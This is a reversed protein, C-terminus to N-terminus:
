LSEHVFDREKQFAKLFNSSRYRLYDDFKRFSIYRLVYRHDMQKQYGYKNLHVVGPREKM